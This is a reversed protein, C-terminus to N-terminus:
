NRLEKGTLQLFLTELNPGIIEMRDYAMGSQEIQAVIAGLKEASRPVYDVHDADAVAEAGEVALPLGSGGTLYLRVSRPLKVRSFLDSLTGEALVRGHDIIGVRQCLREAEEMYHTTYIITKGTAHLEKLLSFIRVRSQPDVGVTPEDLLLVPPDHLLGVALNLRRKMGGSFTKVRREQQEELGVIGLVRRIREALDKGRLGNLSGFLELNRRASLMDYLAIEQPVVGLFQAADKGGAPHGLISVEGGDTKLVGSLIRLLTTKGAGNPGLLGFFEGEHICLSVGDLARVDGFSKRLGAVDVAIM